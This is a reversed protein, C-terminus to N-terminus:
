SAAYWITKWGNSQILCQYERGIIELATAAVEVQRQDTFRTKETAGDLDISSQGTLAQIARPM